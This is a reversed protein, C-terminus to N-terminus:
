GDPNRPMPNRPMADYPFESIKYYQNHYEILTGHNCEFVTKGKCIEKVVADYQSLNGEFNAIYRWGQRWESPESNTGHMYEELEPYIKLQESTAPTSNIYKIVSVNVEMVDFSADTTLSSSLSINETTTDGKNLSLSQLVSGTVIYYMFSGVVIVAFVIVAIKANGASLRM